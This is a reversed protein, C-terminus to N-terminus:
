CRKQDTGNSSNDEGVEARGLMTAVAAWATMSSAKTRNVRENPLSPAGNPTRSGNMGGAPDRHEIYEQVMRERSGGLRERSSSRGSSSSGPDRERRDPAEVTPENAARTPLLQAVKPCVESVPETPLLFTGTNRCSRLRRFMCAGGVMRVFALSPSGARKRGNRVDSVLMPVNPTTVISRLNDTRRPHSDDSSSQTSRATYGNTHYGGSVSFAVDLARAALSGSGEDSSM